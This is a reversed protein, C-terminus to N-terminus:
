AHPGPPVFVLAALAYLQAAPPTFVTAYAFNKGPDVCNVLKGNVFDGAYCLQGHDVAGISNPLTNAINVWPAGSSGDALSCGSADVAVSVSSSYVNPVNRAAYGHRNVCSRLNGDNGNGQRYGAAYAFISWNEGQPPAGTFFNVPFAGVVDQLPRQISGPSFPQLAIFTYDDAPNNDQYIAQSIDGTQWVGYPNGSCTDVMVGACVTGTHGPAFEIETVNQFGCHKATVIVNKDPSNVVTATCTVSHGDQYHISMVGVASTPVSTPTVPGTSLASYGVEAIGQAVSTQGYRSAFVDYQLVGSVPNQAYTHQADIIFCSGAAPAIGLYSCDSLNSDYTFNSSDLNTTTGDGWVVEGSMGTSDTAGSPDVATAVQTNVLPYGARDMITGAHLTLATPNGARFHATALSPALYEGYVAVEDELGTMGTTWGFSGITFPGPTTNLTTYLSFPQAQATATYCSGNWIYGNPQAGDVTISVTQGSDTTSVAVYHWSGDQLKSNPIFIDDDWMRLYFGQGGPNGCGGPGGPGTLALDFAQTHGFSGAHFLNGASSTNFWLEVTRDNGGSFPSLTPGQVYASNGSLAVATDDSLVGPQGEAVPGVYGANNHNGSADGAITGSSEDLHYYALPSNQLVLSSYSALSGGGNVAMATAPAVMSTVIVSVSAVLGPM